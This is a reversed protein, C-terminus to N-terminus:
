DNRFVGLAFLGLTAFILLHGVELLSINGIDYLSPWTADIMLATEASIFIGFAMATFLLRKTKLRHYSILSLILLFSSLTIGGIHVGIYAIHYGHFLHPLIIPVALIAIVGAFVIGFLASKKEFFHQPSLL